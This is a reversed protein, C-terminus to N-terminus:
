KENDKQIIKIYDLIKNSRNKIKKAPIGFYIKWPEIDKTVFSFAGVASGEGVTVSPMIVCNTGIQVYDLIKVKGSSINTFSSPVMPGVMFNGSFDDSASFITSRPSIGSFNGIEIEFRGYLACFASIHVNNKINIKGSLISFDDIRVNNGITINQADYISTKKSILVNNGYSKLGLQKLETKNYFSNM